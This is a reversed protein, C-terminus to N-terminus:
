EDNRAKLTALCLALAPTSQGDRDLIQGTGNREILYCDWRGNSAEGLNAVRWGEPVLTLAVELSTTYHRPENFHLPGYGDDARRYYYDADRHWTGVIRGIQADLERSGKTAGELEKILDNM